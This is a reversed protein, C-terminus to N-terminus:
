ATYVWYALPALAGLGMAVHLCVCSQVNFFDNKNSNLHRALLEKYSGGIQSTHPLQTLTYTVARRIKSDGLLSFAEQLCQM